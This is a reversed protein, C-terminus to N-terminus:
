AAVGSKKAARAEAAAKRKARNADREAKDKAWFERMKKKVEEETSAFFAMNLRGEIMHIYGLWEQGTPANKSFYTILKDTM